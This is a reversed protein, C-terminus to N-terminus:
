MLCSAPEQTHSGSLHTPLHQLESKPAARSRQWLLLQPGSWLSKSTTPCQTGAAVGPQHCDGRSCGKVFRQCKFQPWTLQQSVQCKLHSNLPHLTLKSEDQRGKWYGCVERPKSHLQTAPTFSKTKYIGLSKGTCRWNGQGFLKMINRNPERVSLAEQNM